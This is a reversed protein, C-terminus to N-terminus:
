PGRRIGHSPSSKERQEAPRPGLNTLQIPTFGTSVAPSNPRLGLEPRAPDVLLPDAIQSHGDQGGQRWEDWSKGAFRYASAQTGARTDFYTNHDLLFERTTGMWHSGLLDGTDWIVVNHEFRFSRHEEGRTRMLEHERNFAILNNRVVNDRGYHQHFGASKCRYVVNNELLIGTSGEDTYLGWGGYGHSSIDRFVNHRIVTGPQPGLTYIGGMDSLRDQGIREVLNFEIVNERCPTAQYGWNWGVSIGTYYLDSIHNHAIRNTGSHFVLIGVAPAFIRGLSQLTNDTIQHSHNADAAGADRGGPEGMRIGGGGVNRITNGVIRWHQAGAGLELAYGGLNELLNDAFVGGTAHHVRITGPIPVAAQPSILGADPMDYDADSFAIGEIRIDRVPHAPDDGQIRVLETLRPAVVLAENPNVGPPALYRLTGSKRDLYWEGPADLADAVNEVWYRADAEDMWAPVPGGPLRAIGPNTGVGVNISLIPLHLDTWKMLLVLRADRDGAWEPHLDGNHFSLEIPSGSGLRRVTQLFGTNPTRARQARQGNVFLQRFYWQGERVQPLPTIWENTRDPVPTFGRIRTGGSLIPHEGPAARLTLGSDATGLDLPRSLEYRGSGLEIVIGSKTAGRQRAEELARRLPADSHADDPVVQLITEALLPEIGLFGLLLISGVLRLRM